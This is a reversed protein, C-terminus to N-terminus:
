REPKALVLREIYIADKEGPRAHPFRPGTFKIRAWVECKQGPNAADFASDIGVQVIM